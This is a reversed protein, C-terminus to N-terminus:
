ARVPISEGGCALVSASPIADTLNTYIGPTASAAMSADADTSDFNTSRGLADHAAVSPVSSPAGAAITATLRNRDAASAPALGSIADIGRL